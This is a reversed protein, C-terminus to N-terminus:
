RRRKHQRSNLPIMEVKPAFTKAIRMARAARQLRRQVSTNKTKKHHRHHSSSDQLLSGDFNQRATYRAFAVVLDRLHNNDSPSGEGRIALQLNAPVTATIQTNAAAGVSATSSAAATSATSPMNSPATLLVQDAQEAISALLPPPASLTPAMAQMLSKRYPKPLAALREIEAARQTAWHLDWLERVSRRITERSSNGPLQAKGSKYLEFTNYKKKNNKFKWTLALDGILAPFARKSKSHDTNRKEHEYRSAGLVKRWLRMDPPPLLTQSVINTVRFNVVRLQRGTIRSFIYAVTQATVLAHEPTQDGLQNVNGSTWVMILPRTAPTDLCIRGKLAKLSNQYFFGYQLRTVDAIRKVNLRIPRGNDSVIRYSAITNDIYARVISTTNTVPDSCVRTEVTQLATHTPVLRPNLRALGPTSM